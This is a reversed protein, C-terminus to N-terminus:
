LDIILPKGLHTRLCKSSLTLGGTNRGEENKKFEFVLKDCLLIIKGKM